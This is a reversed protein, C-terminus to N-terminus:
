AVHREVSYCGLRHRLWYYFVYWLPWSAASGFACTLSRGHMSCGVGLLRRGYILVIFSVSCESLKEWVQGWYQSNGPEYGPSDCWVDSSCLFNHTKTVTKGGETKFGNSGCGPTGVTCSATTMATVETFTASAYSDKKYSGGSSYSAYCGAAADETAASHLGFLAVTLGIPVRFM